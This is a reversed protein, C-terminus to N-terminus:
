GRGKMYLYQVRPARGRTQAALEAELAARARMLEDISRLTIQTGNDAVQKEPSAIAATLADIQEQITM